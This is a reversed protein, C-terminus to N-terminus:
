CRDVDSEYDDVVINFSYWLREIDNRFQKPKMINDSEKLVSCYLLFSIKQMIKNNRTLHVGDLADIDHCRQYLLKM